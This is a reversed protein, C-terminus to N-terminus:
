MIPLKFKMTVEGTKRNVEIKQNEFGVDKGTSMKFLGSLFQMGSNMVQELEETKSIPSEDNQASKELEKEEASESIQEPQINEENSEAKSSPNEATEPIKTDEYTPIVKSAEDQFEEDEFLDQQVPKQSEALFERNSPCALYIM